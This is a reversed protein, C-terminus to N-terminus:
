EWSSSCRAILHHRSCELTNGLNDTIASRIGNKASVPKLSDSARANSYVRTSKLRLLRVTNIVLLLFGLAIGIVSRTREIRKDLFAWPTDIGNPSSSLLWASLSHTLIRLAIPKASSLSATKCEKLCVVAERKASASTFGNAIMFISPCELM